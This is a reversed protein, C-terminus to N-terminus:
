KLLNSAVILAIVAVAFLKWFLKTSEKTTSKEKTAPHDYFKAIVVPIPGSTYELIKKVEATYRVGSDLFPAVYKADDEPVYGIWDGYKTLVKTAFKSHTNNPERELIIEDGEFVDETITNSRNGRRTGAVMFDAKAIPANTKHEKRAQLAVANLSPEKDKNHETLELKRRISTAYHRETRPLVKEIALAIDKRKSDTIVGDAPIDRLTESLYKAAPLECDAQELWLHIAHIEEDEIIGDATISQCISLLEIGASTELQKKTLSTRQSKVSTM